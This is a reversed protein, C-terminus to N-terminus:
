IPIKKVVEVTLHRTRIKNNLFDNTKPAKLIKLLKLCAKLTSDKPKIIIMHNEIAVPVDLNIITASARFKDSPSSTRKVVVFPPHILKGAFKRTETLKTVVEWAPSNKPHFYPHEEGSQPDRYAVLPGVRVDYKSSLQKYFGLDLSWAIKNETNHNIKGSLIFVDVDTKKNFRGWINCHGVLNCEVYKRFDAYRSGSRLVDPLIASISCNSPLLRVYKDIFIGASNVKGRKWYHDEPSSSLIFPPNMIIHTLNELDDKIIELANRAKLNPLLNLAVSIDCDMKAGRNLADIIIRLKAVEIFSDYLDYGRLQEGWISLTQTLKPYVKLRRSCLVLLNGAGCTPDMIVSKSGIPEPFLDLTKTALELGTFFTGSERMHEISFSDRLVKDIEDLDISDIADGKLASFIIERLVKNYKLPAQFSM